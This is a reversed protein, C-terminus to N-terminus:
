QEFCYLCNSFYNCNQLTGCSLWGQDTSYSLGISGMYSTSNSTWDSCNSGTGMGWSTTGTWVPYLTMPQGFEDIEPAALPAQNNAIDNTTNFVRVGDVRVWTALPIRSIATTTSTSLFAV